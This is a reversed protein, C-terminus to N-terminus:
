LNYNVCPMLMLHKYAQSNLANQLAEQMWLKHRRAQRYRMAIRPINPLVQNLVAIIHALTYTKGTGPGGTIISLSQTAATQLAKKSSHIKCYILSSPKYNLHCLRSRRFVYFIAPSRINWNGTAICICVSGM